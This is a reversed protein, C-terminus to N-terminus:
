PRQGAYVTVAFENFVDDRLASFGLREAVRISRLNEPRVMATLYPVPLNAFGWEVCARGAETAYGKGWEERRLVWGVETEDFQKWYKLGARGLFRGSDRHIIAVLGHGRQAWELRDTEIRRIAWERDVHRMFRSVDPHAHMSVVDELDAMEIPRLLLRETEIQM